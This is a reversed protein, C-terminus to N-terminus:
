MTTASSAAERSDGLQRLQHRLDHKRIDQNEFDQITSLVLLASRISITFAKRKILRVISGTPRGRGRRFCSNFDFPAKNDAGKFERIKNPIVTVKNEDPSDDDSDDLALQDTKEVVSATQELKSATYLGSDPQLKNFNKSLIELIVKNVEEGKSENDDSKTDGFKSSGTSDSRERLRLSRAKPDNEPSESSSRRDRNDAVTRPRGRGRRAQHVRGGQGRQKRYYQDIEWRDM